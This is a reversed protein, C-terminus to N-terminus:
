RLNAGSSDPQQRSSTPTPSPLAGNPALPRTLHRASDDGLEPQSKRNTLPMRIWSPSELEVPGDVLNKIKTVPQYISLYYYDSNLDNVSFWVKLVLIRAPDPTPSQCCLAQAGIPLSGAAWLSAAFKRAVQSVSSRLPRSPYAGTNRSSANPGPAARGHHSLPRAARSRPKPM